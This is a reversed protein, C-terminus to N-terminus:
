CDSLHSASCKFMVTLSGNTDLKTTSKNTFAIKDVSIDTDPLSSVGNNITVDDNTESTPSNDKPKATKSSAKSIQYRDRSENEIELEQYKKETHMKVQHCTKSCREKEIDTFQETIKINSNRNSTELDKTRENRVNNTCANEASSQNKLELIDCQRFTPSKSRSVMDGAIIEESDSTMRCSSPTHLM